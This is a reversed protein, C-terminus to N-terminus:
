IKDKNRQLNANPFSDPNAITSKTCLVQRSFKPVGSKYPLTNQISAVM